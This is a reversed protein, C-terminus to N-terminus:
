PRGPTPSTGVFSKYVWGQQGAFIVECWHRCKVVQVPSGGPITGVVPQDNGPGARMNVPSIIRASRTAVAEDGPGTTLEAKGPLPQSPAAQPLAESPADAAAATTDFQTPQSSSPAEPEVGGGKEADSAPAEIPQPAVPPAVRPEDSQAAVISGTTMGHGTARGAEVGPKGSGGPEEVRLVPEKAAGVSAVAPPNAKSPDNGASVPHPQRL